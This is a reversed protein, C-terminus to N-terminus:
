ITASDPTRADDPLFRLVPGSWARISRPLYYQLNAHRHGSSDDPTADTTNNLFLLECTNLRPNEHVIEHLFSSTRCPNITKTTLPLLLSKSMLCTLLALTARQLADCAFGKTQRRAQIRNVNRQVAIGSPLPLYDAPM